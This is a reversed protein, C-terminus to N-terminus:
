DTITSRQAWWWGHRVKPPNKWNLDPKLKHNFGWVFYTFAFTNLIRLTYQEIHTSFENM